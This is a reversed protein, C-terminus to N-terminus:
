ELRDFTLRDIHAVLVEVESGVADLALVVIGLKGSVVAAIFDAVAAEAAIDGAAAAPSDVVAAHGTGDVDVIDEEASAVQGL